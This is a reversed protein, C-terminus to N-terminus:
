MMDQPDMDVVWQVEDSETLESITATLVARLTAEEPCLIQVHFRYLNRLKPFPAPAPGLIKYEIAAAAFKQKLNETAQEIYAQVTNERPGRMIVRALAWYPPYHFQERMPLEEDAFMEYDHQSAAVISVHEPDFTQVLVRGGREGRGTRGAVQTVLQFTREAARYDPLHLATDANIVGVLLVNPFDLGKAIMQTGLLVDVEHRGFREFAKAYSGPEKMTDTDMRLVNAQPFRARVEAELKQTGLGTYRLGSFDCEECTMPSRKEFDCYHCVLLEGTRHHTMAIDCNPCKITHGCAPCQVHTSYGRRNLLLIVQGNADLTVKMAQALQRSIAGRNM